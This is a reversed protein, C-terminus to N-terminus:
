LAYLLLAYLLSYYFTSTSSSSSSYLIILEVEIVKLLGATMRIFFGMYLAQRMRIVLGM